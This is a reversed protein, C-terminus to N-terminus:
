QSRGEVNTQSLSAWCPGPGHDSVDETGAPDHEARCVWLLPQGSQPWCLPLQLGGRPDATLIFLAILGSSTM